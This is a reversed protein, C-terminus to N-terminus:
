LKVNKLVRQRREQEEVERQLQQRHEEETEIKEKRIMEEYKRNATPFWSKFSDIIQQVEHESANICAKDGSISFRTPEKGLYSSYGDMNYLASIWKQNVPHQFILTLMNSDYDFNVLRPPDLILPDDIDTVPIVTQKLENIRQRTVFENKRAILQQKVIEISAPREDASQRLMTSVLDDLYGYEPSVSGITKYGTGQPIAGTFMENLILGIAYIDARSDVTFGRSRQEPAAYQFNALRTSPATEVATYLDEEEFRAIGFDAILLRNKAEDYLVNEPKLDRHVVRFLHAAEMGDLLQSFYVLVKDPPIRSLLLKRLSGAYLPMVYFPSTKKGDRFVGYDVVTIINPHQNKLSFLLENQFRRLREKTAKMPDLMKVAFESGSENNAKYVHGAGGEGLIVNATFNAFATEFIIPKSLTM